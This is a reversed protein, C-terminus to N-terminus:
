SIFNASYTVLLPFSWHETNLHTPLFNEVWGPPSSFHQIVVSSGLLPMQPSFFHIHQLFSALNGFVKHCGTYNALESTLGPEPGGPELSESSTM